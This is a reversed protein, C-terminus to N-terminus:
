DFAITYRAYARNDDESITTKFHFGEIDDVFPLAKSIFTFKMDEGADVKWESKEMEGIFPITNSKYEVGNNGRDARLGEFYLDVDGDIVKWSRHM